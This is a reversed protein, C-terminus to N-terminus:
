QVATTSLVCTFELPYIVCSTCARTRTIRTKSSLVSNNRRRRAFKQTNRWGNCGDGDHVRDWLCSAFVRVNISSARWVKSLRKSFKILWGRDNAHATRPLLTQRGYLDPGTSNNELLSPLVRYFPFPDGDVFCCIYKWFELSQFGIIDWRAM